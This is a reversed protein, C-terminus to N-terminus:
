FRESWTLGWETSSLEIDKEAAVAGNPASEEQFGIADRRKQAWHLTIHHQYDSGASSFVGPRQAFAYTLAARYAQGSVPQNSVFTLSQGSASVNTGAYNFKVATKAGHLFESAAELRLAQPHEFSGLKTTADIGIQFPYGQLAFNGKPYTVREYRIFGALLARLDLGPSVVFKKRLLLETDLNLQALVQADFERGSAPFSNAFSAALIVDDLLLHRVDISLASVRVSNYRFKLDYNSKFPPAYPVSAQGFGGGISIGSFWHRNVSGDLESDLDIDHLDEEVPQPLDAIGVAPASLALASLVISMRFNAIRM